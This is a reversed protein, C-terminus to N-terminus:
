TIAKKRYSFWWAVACVPIAALLDLVSHQKLFVTSLCVLVIGACIPILCSPRRLRPHYAAACVAAISGIAHESPFVNTNTDITHLLQVLDTLLNDRPYVAPRLEQCSPFILFILTSLAMSISLFKSYRRFSDLDTRLTYLLLLLLCPMWLMYPLLFGEQFPIWDDVICHIVHCRELPILHEVLPYRLWYIPWFLLWRRVQRRTEASVSM